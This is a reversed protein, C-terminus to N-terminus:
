VEELHDLTKPIMLNWRKVLKNYKRKNPVLFLRNITRYKELDKLLTELVYWKEQFRELLWGLRMAATKVPYKLLMEMLADLNVFRFGEISQIFETIGFFKDQNMLGELLIREKSFYKVLVDQIVAKELGFTLDTRHFRYLSNQFKFSRPSQKESLPIGVQYHQSISYADGTVRLATHYVIAGEPHLKGAILLPDVLVHTNYFEQPTKFYYVNAKIRMARGSKLLRHINLDSKSIDGNYFAIVDERYVVRQYQLARYLKGTVEPFHVQKQQKAKM